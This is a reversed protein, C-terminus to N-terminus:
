RSLSSNRVPAEFMWYTRYGLGCARRCDRLTLKLRGLQVLAIGRNLITASAPASLIKSM